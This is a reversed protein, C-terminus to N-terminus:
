IDEYGIIIKVGISPLADGDRRVVAGRKRYIIRDVVARLGIGDIGPGADLRVAGTVDVANEPDSGCCSCGAYVVYGVVSKRLGLQSFTAGESCNSIRRLEELTGEM